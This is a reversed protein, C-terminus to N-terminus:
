GGQNLTSMSPFDNSVVRKFIYSHDVYKNNEHILYMYLHLGLFEEFPPLAPKKFNLFPTPPTTIGM